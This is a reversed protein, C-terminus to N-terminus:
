ANSASEVTLRSGEGHDTGGKNTHPTLTAGQQTAHLQSKLEKACAIITRRDGLLAGMALARDRVSLTVDYHPYVSRGQFWARQLGLRKAFVHLEDLTDAVLHCWLKGRWSIQEDDVYVTM